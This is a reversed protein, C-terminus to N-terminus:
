EEPQALAVALADRASQECPFPHLRAAFRSGEVSPVIFRATPDVAAFLHGRTPHEATLLPGLMGAAKGTM